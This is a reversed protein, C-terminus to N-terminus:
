LLHSRVVLVGCRAERVVNSLTSWPSHDALASRNRLGVIILSASESEAVKTIIQAPSGVEIRIKPSCFLEVDSPLLRQLKQRLANEFLDFDLGLLNPRNEIVHLMTIRGDVHESLASAYQAARLGTTNLDSAFLISRFPHQVIHCKPGVILVPCSLKRLATEAVSGLVVKELGSAGHSGLVVLTVKDETSVEDILDLAAGPAVTTKLRLGVLRPESAVLEKMKNKAAELQAGLVAAPMPEQADGYMFPSVAHVIFLEAGFEAAITVALQLAKVAPESFDMGVLIRSFQVFSTALHTKKNDFSSDAIKTFSTM